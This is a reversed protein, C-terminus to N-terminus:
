PKEPSVARRLSLLVAPFCEPCRRRLCKQILPAKKEMENLPITVLIKCELLVHQKSIPRSIKAMKPRPIM